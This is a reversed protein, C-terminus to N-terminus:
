EDDNLFYKQDIEIQAEKLMNIYEDEFSIKTHHIRQNKICKKIQGTDGIKCTFAAYRKGWSEFDEFKDHKKMWYNTANKLEKVFDSLSITPHLSVLIHIHNPIGNIQIM